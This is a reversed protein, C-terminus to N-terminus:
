NGKEEPPVDDAAVTNRSAARAALIEDILELVQEVTIRQMCLNDRCGSYRNNFANVCPSCALGAWLVHNRPTRAAFLHPTEPGFITIADVGTLSSFHAPGSDNTVLIDALQYLILLQRLTTRGAMCFCRPSDLTEALARTAAAEDPAGTFAVYADAYRDLVRRTLEVYRESPWRRLPLLDSANCNMLILRAKGTRVEEPLMARVAEVEAPAPQFVPLAPDAEGPVLDFAPLREAPQRLAEVLWLFGQSAHAHPHYSIRHTMLDGRYPGETWAHLGVRYKAGSLYCTAASSRAFFEMDIVTDIKERRMRALARLGGMAASWLGRTPIAIVNEPPIVGLLDVIFRNEQFAVFFVNPRGVMEVARRLAEYALVTSGQEAFKIFAIRNPRAVGAVKNWCTLKRWLSLCACLPVGLWRDVRRMTMVNM